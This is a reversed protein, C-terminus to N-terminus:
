FRREFPYKLIGTANELIFMCLSSHVVRTQPPLCKFQRGAVKLHRSFAWCISFGPSIIIVFANCTYSFSDPM